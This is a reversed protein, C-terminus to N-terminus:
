ASGIERMSFWSVVGNIPEVVVRVRVQMWIFDGQWQALARNYALGRWRKTCGAKSEYCTPLRSGVGFGDRARYYRTTVGLENVRGNRAYDVFLDGNHIRYGYGALVGGEFIQERQGFEAEVDAKTEGFAIDGVRHWLVLRPPDGTGHAAASSTGFAVACVLVIM